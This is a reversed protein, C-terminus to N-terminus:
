ALSFINSSLLTHKRTVKAEIKWWIADIGDTIHLRFVESYDRRGIGMGGQYRRVSKWWDWRCVVCCLELELRRRPVVGM